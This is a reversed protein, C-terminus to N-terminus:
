NPQIMRYCSIRRPVDQEDASVTAGAPLNVLGRLMVVYNELVYAINGSGVEDGELQIRERYCGDEDFVDYTFPTYAGSSGADREPLVWLRGNRRAVLSVIAPALTPPESDLISRALPVKKLMKAYVARIEEREADSYRRRQFERGFIRQMRGEADFVKVVYDNPDEVLYIWKGCAFKALSVDGIEKIGKGTVLNAMATCKRLLNGREVGDKGLVSLFSCVEQAGGKVRMASGRVLFGTGSREIRDLTVFGLIGDQTLKVQTKKKQGRRGFVVIEGPQRRAVSVDGTLTCAVDIAGNIEGPGEGPRILVGLYGQIPSFELVQGGQTDLMYILSDGSMVVRSITGIPPLRDDTETLEYSWVSEMPIIRTAGIPTSPNLVHPIGDVMRTEAVCHPVGQGYVGRPASCGFVIAAAVLVHVPFDSMM